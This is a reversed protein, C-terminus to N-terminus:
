IFANFFASAPSYVPSSTKALDYHFIPYNEELDGGFDKQWIINFSPDTELMWIDFNYTSTCTNSTKNGSFNSNSKGTLILNNNNTLIMKPTVDQMNGGFCKDGYIVFSQSNAISSALLLCIYILLSKKM